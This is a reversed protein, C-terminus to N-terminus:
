ELVPIRQELSGALWKLLVSPPRDSDGENCPVGDPYLAWGHEQPDQGHRHARYGCHTDKSNLRNHWGKPWGREIIRGPEELGFIIAEATDEVQGAAAAGHIRFSSVM